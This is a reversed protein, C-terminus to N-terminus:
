KKQFLRFIEGIWLVLSTGAIIIIWDIAPLPDVNFMDGAFTVILWQGALIVAAIFLIGKCAGLSAFASKGTMFAKANFLNWFQLMVFITFFLSLQIAFGLTRMAKNQYELLQKHIDEKAVPVNKCLDLVIEPAGKVYLVKKGLLPSKVITAM